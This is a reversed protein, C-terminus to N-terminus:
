TRTGARSKRVYYSFNGYDVEIHGTTCYHLPKEDWAHAFPNKLDMRKSQNNHFNDSYPVRGPASGALISSHPSQKLSAVKEVM